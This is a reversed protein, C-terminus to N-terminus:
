APRTIPIPDARLARREPANDSGFRHIPFRAVGRVGRDRLWAKAAAATLDNPPDPIAADRLAASALISRLRAPRWPGDWVPAVFWERRGHRLHGSTHAATNVRPAAPLQGIGWLACWVLANDIPGPTTLGTATVSDPKGGLEDHVIEGAVGAALQGPTRTPLRAALPRLRNGVFESGRNRPQMEYRSAGDDQRPDGRYTSWYCPEGLAALYRLDSWAQASTLKDLVDHRADQLQEWAQRDKLTSLRPSMLGRKDGYERNVWTRRNALHTRIAQDVRNDDLRTGTLVPRDANWHLRLDGIGDEALIDALGYFALHHVLVLPDAGTLVFTTM